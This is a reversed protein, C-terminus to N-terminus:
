APGRPVRRTALWWGLLMFAAVGGGVKAEYLWADEGPPPVFALLIGFAVSALGSWGAFSTGMTRQRRLKLYAAFM